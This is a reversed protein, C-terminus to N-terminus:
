IRKFERKTCFTFRGTCLLALELIRNNINMYWHNPHTLFVINKYGKLVADVPNSNYSFGYNCGLPADMIHSSICKEYLEKNYVEFEVGYYSAPFDEFLMNNSYRLNTNVIDGHGAASVSKYNIMNNFKEIDNKLRNRVEKLNVESIDTIGKERAYDSMTEYHLGVEFGDEIMKQILKLDITSFRFYYSSRVGLAKEVQYMKRTAPTIHDVDHRLILHKKNSFREEYFCSFPVINYGNEQALKIYLKYVGLRNNLIITKYLFKINNDNRKNDKLISNINM